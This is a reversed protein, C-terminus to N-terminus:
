WMRKIRKKMRDEPRAGLLRGEVEVTTGDPFSFAFVSLNKVVRRRRKDGCMITFTNRTEDIVKGSLGTSDPNRSRVIRADLGIFESQALSARIKM